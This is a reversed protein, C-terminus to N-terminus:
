LNILQEKIEQSLFQYEVQITKIGDFFLIWEWPYIIPSDNTVFVKQKPCDKMKEGVFRTDYISIECEKGSEVDVNPDIIILLLGYETNIIKLNKIMSSEEGFPDSEDFQEYLKIHNMKNNKKTLDRFVKM